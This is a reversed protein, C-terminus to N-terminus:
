QVSVGVSYKFSCDPTKIFFFISEAFFSRGRQQSAARGELGGGCLLRGHVFLSTVVAVSSVLYGLHHM